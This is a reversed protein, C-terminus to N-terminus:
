TVACTNFSRRRNPANAQRMANAKDVLVQHQAEIEEVERIMAKGEPTFLNPKMHELTRFFLQRAESQQELFRPDGSLMYGRVAAAKRAAATQLRAADILNQAYVALVRDKSTVVRNLSYVAIGAMVMALIATVAFGIALKEGFTLRQGM